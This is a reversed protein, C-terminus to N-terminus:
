GQRILEAGREAIAYVTAVTNSSPLTPMVSADVVRLGDIGRVRLESDVVAEDTEGMACTGVPHFYSSATAKIHERLATEDGTAPAIEEARWNDLAPAAGIDRAIDFGRLMTQMDREDGLYNPDVIPARGPQADALRVSGRSFPQMASVGILYTDPMDLGIVTASDVLMLQLDPAGSHGSTRIFGMAEGHNYRAPPVPVAARYVVGTLVHDQLNAGVGPADLVVDIGHARLHDAEGIGSLMLLQPSGIGGAALVIERTARQQVLDGTGSVFEIAVARGSEVIVRHVVSDTVIDLNSRGVAQSLYADAATLRRGGVIALDTPGFGVELGSSIDRAMRHGRQQAASLVASVVTNPPSAPAVHVPGDTGRISPNGHAATESRKFYPLLDEFGWGKAGFQSWMTYSDRHGRSFVMANIATSGGLVRGRGLHVTTGTGVQKTTEVGWDAPGHLLSPWEPPNVSAKPPEAAGAEVLLVRIEPDESLRAALVSGATGGGVIVYEYSVKM